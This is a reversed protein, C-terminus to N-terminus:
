RQSFRGGRLGHGIPALELDGIQEFYAQLADDQARREDLDRQQRLTKRSTQLNVIGVIGGILAVVGAAILAFVQVVDKRGTPGKPEVYGVLVGWGWIGTVVLVILGLIIGITMGIATKHRLVWRMRKMIARRLHPLSCSAGNAKM